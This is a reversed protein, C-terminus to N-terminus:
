QNGVSKFYVKIVGRATFVVGNAPALVIYLAGGKIDSAEASVTDKWETRVGLGKAFRNVSVLNDTNPVPLKTYDATFTSGNCSLTFPWRRKVVFRHSVERKVKWTCPWNTLGSPVDFIDSPVLDAIGTPTKDYVLWCIPQSKVCYKQVTSSASVGLSVSVKYTITEQSKRQNEASGRTFATLLLARGGANFAQDEAYQFTQVQLADQSASSRSGTWKTYRPKKRRKGASSSGRKRKSSAPM